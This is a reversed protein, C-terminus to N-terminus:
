TAAVSSAAAGAWSPSYISFFTEAARGAFPSLTGMLIGQGSFVYMLVTANIITSVLAASGPAVEKLAVLAAAANQTLSSALGPFTLSALIIGKLLIANSFSLPPSSAVNNLSEGIVIILFKM